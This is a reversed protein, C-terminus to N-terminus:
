RIHHHMHHPVYFTGEDTMLVVMENTLFNLDFGKVNHSLMRNKRTQRKKRQHRWGGDGAV